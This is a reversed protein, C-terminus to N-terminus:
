VDLGAKGQWERFRRELIIRKKFLGRRVYKRAKLRVPRSSFGGDRFKLVKGKPKIFAGKDLAKAGPHDSWVLGQNDSLGKGQFPIAGKPSAKQIAEAVDKTVNDVFAKQGIKLKKPVALLQELGKIDFSLGSAV